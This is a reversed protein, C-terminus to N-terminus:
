HISKYRPPAAVKCDGDIAQKQLGYFTMRQSDTLQVDGDAIRQTASMFIQETSMSSAMNLYLDRCAIFSQIILRPVVMAPLFSEDIGGYVTGLM